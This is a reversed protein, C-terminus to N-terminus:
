KGKEKALAAACDRCGCRKNHATGDTIMKRAREFARRVHNHSWQCPFGKHHAPLEWLVLRELEDLSALELLASKNTM